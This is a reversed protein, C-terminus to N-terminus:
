EGSSFIEQSCTPCQSSGDTPPWARGNRLQGTQCWSARGLIWSVYQKVPPQYKYKLHCCAVMPILYSIQLCSMQFSNPYEIKREWFIHLCPGSRQWGHHSKKIISWLESIWSWCSNDILQSQLWLTRVLNSGQLGPQGAQHNLICSERGLAQFQSGM